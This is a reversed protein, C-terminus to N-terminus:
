RTQDAIFMWHLMEGIGVHSGDWENRMTTPDIHLDAERLFLELEELEHGSAVRPPVGPIARHHRDLFVIKENRIEASLKGEHILRHSSCVLVLNSLSTPGGEAWGHIHHGHLHRKRGCGPVRCGGDRLWLARGIASPIARTRRGVDLVEGNEGMTVDVRAGDCALMRAIQLPVPTGDRLYGGVGDPGQELQEKTTIVVLEYGSGLTRPQHQLYARAIDVIADARRHELEEGDNAPAVPRAEASADAAIPAAAEASAQDLASTMAEWVVAAEEPALQMEIRVMGGPTESRRVFRRPNKRVMMDGKSDDRVRQFARAMREIQSASAHAAVDIFDQESEPTAVRSIARVKSYSIQGRAFLGDLKPLAGLSRAVRVKERAATLGIGIRWSLWHACSHFGLPGWAEHADFVRLRTLLAHEAVDIRAAFTAIEDGLAELQDSTLSGRSEVIEAVDVNYGNL